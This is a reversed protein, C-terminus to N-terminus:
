LCGSMIRFVSAIGAGVKCGQAYFFRNFDQSFTKIRSYTYRPRPSNALYYSLYKPLIQEFADM